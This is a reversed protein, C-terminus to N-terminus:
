CGFQRLHHDAHRYMLAGWDRGSLRGFAAHEAWEGDPDTTAYRQVLDKLEAVDADWATPMRALMEPSTPAHKPFPLWYIILYSVPRLRLFSGRPKVELLGLSSRLSQILHGVVAPATMKGWRPAATPQLRGLRERLERRTSEDWMTKM